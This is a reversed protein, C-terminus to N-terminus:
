NNKNNVRSGNFIVMLVFAACWNQITYQIALSFLTNLAWITLLPFAFIIGFIVMLLLIAQM